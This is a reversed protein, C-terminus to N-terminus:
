WGDFGSASPSEAHVVDFLMDGTLRPLSIEELAPLWEGFELSESM